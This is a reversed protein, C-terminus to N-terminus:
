LHVIGDGGLPLLRARDVGVRAPRRDSADLEALAPGTPGTLELYQGATADPADPGGGTGFLRYRDAVIQYAVGRSPAPRASPSSPIPPWATRRRRDARSRGPSRRWAGTSRLAVLGLAVAAVAVRPPAHPGVPPTFPTPPTPRM